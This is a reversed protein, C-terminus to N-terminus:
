IMIVEGGFKVFDPDGTVVKAKWHRGAALTFADIASLGHSLRLESATIAIEESIPIIESYKKIFSLAELQKERGKEQFVRYSVEYFNAATTFIEGANHKLLEAVKGKDEDTFFAIWAFSDFVLKM